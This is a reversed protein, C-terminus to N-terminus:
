ASSVQEFVVLRVGPGDVASFSDVSHIRGAEEPIQSFHEREAAPTATHAQAMGKRQVTGWLSSLVHTGHTAAGVHGQLHRFVEAAAAAAATTSPGGLM